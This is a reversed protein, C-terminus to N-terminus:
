RNVILKSFITKKLFILLERFTFLNFSKIIYIFDKNLSFRRSFIQNKCAKNIRLLFREIPILTVNSINIKMSLRLVKLLFILNNTNNNQLFEVFIRSDDPNFGQKNLYNIQVIKTNEIQSDSFVTSIQTSHIRYKLLVKSLNKIKTHQAIKIWLDYDEVHLMSLDYKLNYNDLISKRIMISSHVFPNYFIFAYRLEEDLAPYEIYSSERRIIEANTGVLGYEANAEFFAVQESLRTPLSIDDADMRAIYKGRALSLGKNLTAILKLNSDNKYYRIRTDSYTLILQESHDTSGDNIILLELNNYDQNLISEVADQLYLSANYVPMIVSVLPTNNM